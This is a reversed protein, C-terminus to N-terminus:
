EEEDFDFDFKEFDFRNLKELNEETDETEEVESNLFEIDEERYALNWALIAEHSNDTMPGQSFCDGCIIRYTGECMCIGMNDEGGCFPCSEPFASFKDKAKQFSEEAATELLSNLGLLLIKTLFEDAQNSKNM